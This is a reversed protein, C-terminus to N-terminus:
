YTHTTKLDTKFFFISDTLKLNYVLLLHYHVSNKLNKQLNYFLFYFLIITNKIDHIQGCSESSNIFNVIYKM